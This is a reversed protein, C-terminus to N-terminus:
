EEVVGAIRVSRLYVDMKHMKPDGFVRGVLGDVGNEGVVVFLTGGDEDRERPIGVVTGANELIPEPVGWRVEGKPMPSVWLRLLSNVYGSDCRPIPDGENVLSIFTSCELFPTLAPSTVPPTGFTICHTTAFHNVLPTLVNPSAAKLMHAYLLAAVAGGASHGTFILISKKANPRDSSTETLLSAIKPAM